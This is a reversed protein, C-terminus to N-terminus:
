AGKSSMMAEGCYQSDENRNSSSAPRHHPYRSEPANKSDPGIGARPIEGTLGRLVRFHSVPRASGRRHIRVSAGLGGLLLM